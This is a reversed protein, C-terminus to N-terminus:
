LTVSRQSGSLWGAARHAVAASPQNVQLSSSSSSPSPSVLLCVCLQVLVECLEPNQNRDWLQLRAWLRTGAAQVSHGASPAASHKWTFHQSISILLIYSFVNLFFFSLIFLLLIFLMIFLCIFLTIFVYMFLMISLYYMVYYIFLRCLLCICSM